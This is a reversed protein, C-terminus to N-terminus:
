QERGGGSLVADTGALGHDWTEGDVERARLAKPPSVEDGTGTAWNGSGYGRARGLRGRPVGQCGAASLQHVQATVSQGDTSVRAYGYIM